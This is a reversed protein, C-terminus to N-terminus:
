ANATIKSVESNTFGLADWSKKKAKKFDRLKALHNMRFLKRAQEAITLTKNDKAMPKSEKKQQPKPTVPAPAGHDVTQVSVKDGIIENMSSLEEATIGNLLLGATEVAEKSEKLGASTIQRYAKILSISVGNFNYVDFLPVSNDKSKSIKDEIEYNDFDYKEMWRGVSRTSTELCKAVIAKSKGAKLMTFAKVINDPIGVLKQKADRTAKVVNETRIKKTEIVPDEALSKGTTKKKSRVLTTREPSIKGIAKIEKTGVMVEEFPLITKGEVAAIILNEFSVDESVHSGQCVTKHQNTDMVGIIDYSCVRAKTDEGHPVAIFNEPDVLVIVTKNGSFGGLYSLNAVHLGTSCSKHRSPDVMDVPMTVRSGVRQLIQKSHTDVMFDGINEKTIYEYEDIWSHPASTVRKYAIIRGTNTIPMESRKIFKMLDEGSHKRSQVIPALRKFFNIVSPSEDAAARAMHAQLNEVHPIVVKDKGVTVEVATVDPYFIGQVSKGNVTTTMQIGAEALDSLNFPTVPITFNSLDIEVAETGSLLPTLYESLQNINYPGDYRLEIIEGTATFLTTKQAKDNALMSVVYKLSNSM